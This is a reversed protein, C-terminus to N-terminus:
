DRASILRQLLGRFPVICTDKRYIREPRMAGQDNVHVQLQENGVRRQDRRLHRQRTEPALRYEPVAACLTPVRCETSHRTTRDPNHRM